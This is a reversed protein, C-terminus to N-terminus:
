SQRYTRVTEFVHADTVDRLQVWHGFGCYHIYAQSTGVYEVVVAATCTEIGLDGGIRNDWTLIIPTGSVCLDVMVRVQEISLHPHREQLECALDYTDEWGLRTAYARAYNQSLYAQNDALTQWTTTTFPTRTDTM